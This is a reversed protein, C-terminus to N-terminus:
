FMILPSSHMSCQYGFILTLDGMLKFLAKEIISAFGLFNSKKTQSSHSDHSQLVSLKNNQMDLRSVSFVLLTWIRFQSHQTLKIEKEYRRHNDLCFFFFSSASFIWFRVCYDRFSLGLLSGVQLHWSDDRRRVDRTRPGMKYIFFIKDSLGTYEFNTPFAEM